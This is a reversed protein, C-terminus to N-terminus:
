QVPATGCSAPLTVVPRDNPYNLGDVTQPSFSLTVTKASEPLPCAATTELIMGVGLATPDSGPSYVAPCDFITMGDNHYYSKNVTCPRGKLSVATWVPNVTASVHIQYNFSAIGKTYLTVPVLVKRCDATLCSADTMGTIGVGISMDNAINSPTLTVPTTGPPILRSTPGTISMHRWLQQTAPANTIVVESPTAGQKYTTATDAHDLQKIQVNSQMGTACILSSTCATFGSPGLSGVSFPYINYIDQIISHPNLRLAVSFPASITAGGELTNMVPRVGIYRSKGAPIVFAGRPLQACLVSGKYYSNNFSEICTDVTATALVDQTGQEVIELKKVMGASALPIAFQIQELSMDELRADLILNLASVGTQGPKLQQPQPYNGTDQRVFLTGSRYVTITPYNKDLATLGIGCFAACPTNIKIGHLATGQVSATALPYNVPDAITPAIASFRTKFGTLYSVDPQIDAHIEFIATAGAAIHATDGSLAVTSKYGATTMTGALTEATGDNDMDRWLTFAVTLSSDLVTDFAFTQVDVDDTVAAAEFRLTAINKQGSFATVDPLPLVSLLLKGAQTEKVTFCDSTCLDADSRNGDDCEETGEKKLNGCVPVPSANVICANTCADTNNLNADDCEEGREVKKNGCVAAPQSSVTCTNRCVDGSCVLGCSSSSSSKTPCIVTGCTPCGHSLSNLKFLTCGPPITQEVCTLSPCTLGSIDTQVATESSPAGYFTVSSSSAAVTEPCVVNGCDSCGDATVQHMLICGAPVTKEACIVNPCVFPSSTGQSSAVTAASSQPVPMKFFTVSSRSSSQAAAAHSVALGLGENCRFILDTNTRVIYLKNRQFVSLEKRSGMSEYVNAQPNKTLGTYESVTFRISTVSKLSDNLLPFTDPAGTKKGCFFILDKGPTLTMGKEADMSSMFLVEARLFYPQRMLFLTLFGLAAAILIGTRSPHTNFM